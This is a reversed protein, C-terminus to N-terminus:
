PRSQDSNTTQGRLAEGVYKKLTTERPGAQEIDTDSYRRQIETRVADVVKGQSNWRPDDRSPPGEKEVLRGVIEIIVPGWNSVRGGRRRARKIQAEPAIAKGDRPPPMSSACLRILDDRKLRLQEGKFTGGDFNISYASFEVADVLRVQGDASISKAELHGSRCWEEVKGMARRFLGVARKLVAHTRHLELFAGLYTTRKVKAEPIRKAVKAGYRSDRSVVLQVAQWPTLWASNNWDDTM